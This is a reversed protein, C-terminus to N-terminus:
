VVLEQQQFGGYRSAEYVKKSRANGQTYVIEGRELFEDVMAIAAHLFGGPNARLDLVLKQMGKSKLNDIASTFEDDTTGSFRNVKIYGIEKDIMYSVDVCM